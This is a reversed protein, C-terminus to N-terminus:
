WDSNGRFAYWSDGLKRTRYRANGFPSGEENPEKAFGYYYTDILDPANWLNLYYGGRDDRRVATNTFICVFRPNRGLRWTLEEESSRDIAKQFSSGCVTASLREGLGSATLLLFVLVGVGLGALASKILRFTGLMLFLFGLLFIFPLLEVSVVGFGLRLSMWLSTLLGMLEFVSGIALYIPHDIVFPHLAVYVILAVGIISYLLGRPHSKMYEADQQM